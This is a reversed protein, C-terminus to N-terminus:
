NHPYLTKYKKSNDGKTVNYKELISMVNELSLNNLRYVTSLTMVTGKNLEYIDEKINKILWNVKRCRKFDSLEDDWEYEGLVVGIADIIKNTFCSM